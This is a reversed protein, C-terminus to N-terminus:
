MPSVAEQRPIQGEWMVSARDKSPRIFYYCLSYFLDPFLYVIERGECCGTLLNWVWPAVPFVKGGLCSGHSESDTTKAASLFILTLRFMVSMAQLNTHVLM